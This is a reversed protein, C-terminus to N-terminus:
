HSNQYNIVKHLAEKIRHNCEEKGLIDIIIPLKTGPHLGTLAYRLTEFVIKKKINVELKIAKVLDQLSTAGLNGQCLTLVNKIENTDRSSLFEQAVNDTLNPRKFFYWFMENFDNISTLVDGCNILIQSIVDSSVNDSGFEEKASTLIDAVIKSLKEPDKIKERLFHKNFFWLKKYDVKVNGKTLHNLNFLKEIENMTFCEHNAKAIDRPPSWGLLACFNVLAEPLVGKEKLSLVSFDGKRKSLKKDDISTLLPIHIFKPMDWGFLQYLAVHKPTSPLWEEGRIVHTIGMLHDDVVNAFHYTPYGDSKILIPDDFWVGREKQNLQIDVQGHLLDTFPPYRDPSKLRITYPLNATLNSEVIETDLHYCNRDYSPSNPTNSNKRRLQELRDKTCFCHYAAGSDLLIKIYKHYIPLRDSQKIFGEDYNIGCWKLTEYINSIAEPHIRSQDTDELRLIFKGNTSRALLYNYLATRLSGLHLLGTPSPAFRTIAPTTPHIDQKYYRKIIHKPLAIISLPKLRKSFVASRFSTLYM